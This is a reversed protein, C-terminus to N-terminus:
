PRGPRDVQVDPAATWVRGAQRFRTPTQGTFQKFIANFTSKSAFGADFAIDLVRARTDALLAECVYAIRYQNIFEKYNKKHSRLHM